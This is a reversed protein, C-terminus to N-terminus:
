HRTEHAERLANLERIAEMALYVMLATTEKPANNARCEELTEAGAELMEPLVVTESVM